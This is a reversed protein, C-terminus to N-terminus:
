FRTFVASEVPYFPPAPTSFFKMINRIVHPLLDIKDVVVSKKFNSKQPAFLPAGPGTGGGSLTFYISLKAPPPVPSSM